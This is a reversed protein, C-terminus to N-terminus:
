EAAGAIVNRFKITGSKPKSTDELETINVKLPMQTAIGSFICTGVPLTPISEENIKDIYSISKAITRLDEQNVLRHIFYNHAQSIITPSIDSPRQSSITMFVGFKRGEKIIENFTELRYDKWNEAERTSETSLINHAEDVIISLTKSNNYDKHEQYLKRALLLPLMKKMDLSIDHLNIVVFNNEAWFDDDNQISFLKSVDKRRSKLRNIVPAIHENNARNAIIDRILRLYMINIFNSLVDDSLVFDAVKTDVLPVRNPRNRIQNVGDDGRYFFYGRTGHWDLEETWDIENGQDDLTPPLIERLYDRVLFAKDKDTMQFLEEVRAALGNKMFNLPDQQSMIYNYDSISRKIFPRQTKETADVLISFTEIDFLDEQGIKIKDGNDSRTSLNCVKVNESFWPSTYEGNFDFLAFHCNNEFIANNEARLAGVLNQYLSALTNSKGSGTNGFIAIHSNFLGDIPFKIPIDDQESKAIQITFNDANDSIINHITHIKDVTLIFAENGILPLEKTGGVFKGKEDIYGSLSISLIRYNKDNKDLKKNIYRAPEEQIKEGDVKGIISLFGKRIEIFSNVSINKIIGGDFFLDSLNKNKDVRVSIRRGDVSIVEGVRLITNQQVIKELNSM